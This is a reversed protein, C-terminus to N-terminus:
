ADADATAAVSPQRLPAAEGERAIVWGGTIDIGVEDQAPLPHDLSLTLLDTGIGRPLVHTLYRGNQFSQSLIQARVHGPGRSLRLDERHLCLWAPGPGARGPVQLGPVNRAAGDLSLTCIGDQRATVEVPLTAGHGVFRAVMATAPQRYLDEPTGVQQIRGGEMVAIHSAVAMAEDQDHTVLIFTTGTAAHLRRFEALMRHRLHADLNALPEDLLLLAPRLVLSRALAVRQRQGGSLEHPRRDALPELGVAQLMEDVRERREARPLRRTKLAFDVNGRVTMNPWLAYSQFVMGLDRAEPPVFSDTSAILRDGFRLEGADPLELGAILRLLTTKGCGSPGLLALFAGQPLDLDVDHLVQQGGFSKGIGKAQVRPM